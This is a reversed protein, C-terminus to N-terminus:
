HVSILHSEVFNAYFRDVKVYMNLIIYYVMNNNNYHHFYNHREYVILQLYKNLICYAHYFISIFNIKNLFSLATRILQLFTNYM